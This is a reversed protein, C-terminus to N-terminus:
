RGSVIEISVSRPLDAGDKGTLETRGLKPAAYEALRTVLDLAKAPDKKAVADLWKSVNQANKELLLRVTERFERTAKNPTGKSRGGRREGPKAGRKTM